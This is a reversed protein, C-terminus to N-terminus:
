SKDSSKENIISNLYGANRVVGGNIGALAPESELLRLIEEMGFPYGRYLRGYVARAFELDAAYDLTWRMASLDVAQTVNLIRFIGPNKWIYPTVHERESPLKAERWARALASFRVVEVDLGEPYTPKITNSAYDLEPAALLQSIVHDVVVPDKFPDDATIRVVVDAGVTVAAQYYRDLVDDASGQYCGVGKDRAYAALVADEKGSTTALVVANVLRCAKARDIVHGLLAQGAIDVLSKGPLRTSGMRAQIIAVIKMDQCNELGAM